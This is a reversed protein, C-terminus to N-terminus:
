EFYSKTVAYFQYPSSTADIDSIIQKETENDPEPILEAKDLLDKQFVPKKVLFLKNEPDNGDLGYMEGSYARLTSYFIKKRHAIKNKLHSRSQVIFFVAMGFFGLLSITAMVLLSIVLQNHEFIKGIEGSISSAFGAIIFGIGVIYYPQSRLEAKTTFPNGNFYTENEDLIQQRSKILGASFIISGIFGLTAAAISFWM